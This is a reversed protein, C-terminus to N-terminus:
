LWSFVQQNRISGHSITGQLNVFMIKYMSIETVQKVKTNCDLSGIFHLHLFRSTSTGKIERIKTSSLSVRGMSYTLASVYDFCVSDQGAGRTEWARIISLHDLHVFASFNMGRRTGGYFQGM